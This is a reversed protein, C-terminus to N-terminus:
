LNTHQANYDEMVEEMVSQSRSFDKVQGASSDVFEVMENRLFKMSPVLITERMHVFLSIYCKLDESLRHTMSRNYM